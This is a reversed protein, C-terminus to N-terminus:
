FNLILNIHNMLNVHISYSQNFLLILLSHSLFVCYTQMTYTKISMSIQHFAHNVQQKICRTKLYHPLFCLM